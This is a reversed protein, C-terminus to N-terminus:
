HNSNGSCEGHSAVTSPVKRTIACDDKLTPRLRVFSSALGLSTIYSTLIVCFGSGSGFGQYKWRM